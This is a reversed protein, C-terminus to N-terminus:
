SKPQRVVVKNITYINIIIILFSMLSGGVSNNIIGIAVWIISPVLMVSRMAIGKLKLLAFTGVTVAIMPLSDTPENYFYLGFSWYMLYLLFLIVTSSSKISVFSRITNILQVVAASQADLLAYQISFLASSLSLSIKTHNDQSFVYALVGIIFALFGIIQILYMSVSM